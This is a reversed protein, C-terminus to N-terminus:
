QNELQVGLGVPFSTLPRVFLWARDATEHGTFTGRHFEPFPPPPQNGTVVLPLIRNVKNYVFLNTYGAGASCCDTRARLGM